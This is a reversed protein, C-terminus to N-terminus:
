RVAGGADHLAARRLWTSAAAPHTFTFNHAGPLMATHGESAAAALSAAWPRPCVHDHEGRAVFVPCGVREIAKEPRDAMATRLLTLVRGRGRLYEPFTATVLRLPEHRATRITARALGRWRRAQSPFTPGALCLGAVRDPVALAARLAVQAGTSHGVVLMPREPVDRLWAAAADATAALTAPCRATSRHGFGPLDLLHVRTWLGCARVTPLLYGLAGLGPILVIEPTASRAAGTWLSRVPRGVATGTPSTWRSELHSMAPM